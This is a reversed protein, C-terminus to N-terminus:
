ILNLLKRENKNFILEYLIPMTDFSEFGIIQLFFLRLIQKDLTEHFPWYVLAAVKKPSMFAKETGPILVIEQTHIIKRM